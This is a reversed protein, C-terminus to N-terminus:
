HIKVEKWTQYLSLRKVKVTFWAGPEFYDNFYVLQEGGSKEEWIFRHQSVTKGNRIKLEDFLHNMNKIHYKGNEYVFEEGEQANSPMGIGFQEYVMEFQKIQHEETVLYKESVDTLHISHVFVIQFSRGPQIPVYAAIDSTNESYFVLVTKIPIFLFGLFLVVIVIFTFIWKKFFM